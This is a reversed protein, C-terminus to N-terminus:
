VVPEVAPAAVVLEFASAAVVPEVATAAVVVQVAAGAVVAVVAARSEVADLEVPGIQEITLPSSGALAPRTRVPEGLARADLGRKEEHRSPRDCRAYAHHRSPYARNRLRSRVGLRQVDTIPICRHGVLPTRWSGCKAKGSRRGGGSRRPFAGGRRGHTQLAAQRSTRGSARAPAPRM